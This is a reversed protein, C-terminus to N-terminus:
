CILIKSKVTRLSTAFTINKCAHTQGCPPQLVQGPVGGLLLCGGPVSVGMPASVVGPSPVGGPWTCGGSWTCQGPGPVGGLGPVGGQVLYVGWLLCGGSWTCGRLWTCGRSGPVGGSPGPLGGMPGHVGEQALYLGGWSCVGGPGPVGELIRGSSRVTRMRSSHMRTNWSIVVLNCNCYVNCNLFHSKWIKNIHKRM